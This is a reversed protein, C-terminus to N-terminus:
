SFKRCVHESEEILIVRLDCIQPDSCLGILSIDISEMHVKCVKRHLLGLDEHCLHELALQTFIKVARTCGHVCECAFVSPCPYTMVSAIGPCGIDGEILDINFAAQPQLHILRMQSGALRYLIIKIM